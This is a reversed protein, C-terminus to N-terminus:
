DLDLLRARSNDWRLRVTGAQSLSSDAEPSNASTVTVSVQKDFMVYVIAEFHHEALVIDPTNGSEPTEIVIRGGDQLNSQVDRLDSIVQAAVEQKQFYLGSMKYVTGFNLLIYAAILIGAPIRRDMVHTPFSHAIRLLLWGVLVAIGVNPAYMFRSITREPYLDFLGIHWSLIASTATFALAWLLFIRVARSGKWLSYSLFVPTLATVAIKAVKLVIALKAPLIEIMRRAVPLFMYSMFYWLNVLAGIGISVDKDDAVVRNQFYFLVYGMFAALLLLSYCAYRKGFPNKRSFIFLGFYIALTAFGSEKFGLAGLGTALLLIIGKWSPSEIFGVLVWLFLLSLLTVWLDHGVSIWEIAPANLFYFAYIVSSTIALASEAGLRRLVKYLLYVNLGHLVISVLSFIQPTPGLLKEVIAVWLLNLPRFYGYMPRQLILSMESWLLKGNLLWLWDDGMFQRAIFPLYFIFAGIAAFLAWRSSSEIRSVQM